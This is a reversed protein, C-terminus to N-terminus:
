RKPGPLRPPPAGSFCNTENTVSPRSDNIGLPYDGNQDDLFPLLSRAAGAAHPLRSGLPVDPAHAQSLPLPLYSKPCFGVEVVDGFAACLTPFGTDETKLPVSKTQASPLLARCEGTGAWKNTSDSLQLACRAEILAHIGHKKRTKKLIPNCHVPYSSFFPFCVWLCALLCAWGTEQCTVSLHIQRVSRIGMYDGQTWSERDRGKVLSAFLGINEPNGIKIYRIVKFLKVLSLAPILKMFGRWRCYRSPQSLELYLM